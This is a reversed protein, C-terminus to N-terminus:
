ADKMQRKLREGFTEKCRQEVEEKTLAETKMVTEIGYVRVLNNWQEKNRVSSNIGFSREFKKQQELLIQPNDMLGKQFLKYDKTQLRKANWQKIINM